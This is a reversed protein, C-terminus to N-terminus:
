GTCRSGIFIGCGVVDCALQLQTPELQNLGSLRHGGLALAVLRLGLGLCLARLLCDNRSPRQLHLM